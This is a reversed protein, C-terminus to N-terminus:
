WGIFSSVARSNFGKERQRKTEPDTGVILGGEEARGEGLGEPGGPAKLARGGGGCDAVASSAPSPFLAPNLWAMRDGPSPTVTWSCFDKLYLPKPSSPPAGPDGREWLPRLEM